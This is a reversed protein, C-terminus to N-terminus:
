GIVEPTQGILGKTPGHFTSGLGLLPRQEIEGKGPRL